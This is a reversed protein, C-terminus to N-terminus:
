LNIRFLILKNEDNVHTTFKRVHMGMVMTNAGSEGKCIAKSTYVQTQERRSQTDSARHNSILGTNM